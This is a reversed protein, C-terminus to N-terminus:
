RINTHQIKYNKCLKYLSRLAVVGILFNGLPVPFDDWIMLQYDRLFENANDIIYRGGGIKAKHTGVGFDLGLVTLAIDGLNEKVKQPAKKLTSTLDKM